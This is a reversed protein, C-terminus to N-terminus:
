RATPAPTATASPASTPQPQPTATQASQQVATAQPQAPAGASVGGKVGTDVFALHQPHVTFTVALADAKATSDPYVCAAAAVITNGFKVYKSAQWSWDLIGTATAFRLDEGSPQLAIKKESTGTLQFYSATALCEIGPSTLVTITLGDGSQSVLLCVPLNPVEDPVAKDAQCQTPSMRVTARSAQALGPVLGAVIVVVAGWRIRM